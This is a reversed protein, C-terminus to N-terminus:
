ILESIGTFHATEVAVATESTEEKIWGVNVWLNLKKHSAEHEVAWVRFVRNAAGQQEDSSRCVSPWVKTQKNKNIQIFWVELM